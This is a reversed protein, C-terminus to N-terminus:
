FNGHADMKVILIQTPVKRGGFGSTKGVFVYGGDSADAVDYFLGDGNSSITKDWLKKGNADIKLAYPQANQSGLALIRGIVIFGGDNCAHVNLPTITYGPVPYTNEWLLNIKKDIRILIPFTGRSGTLTRTGIGVVGSDRTITQWQCKDYSSNDSSDLVIQKAPGTTSVRAAFLKYNDSWSWNDTTFKMGWINYSGDSNSGFCFYFLTKGGLQNDNFRFSNIMQLNQNLHYIMNNGPSSTGFGNTGPLYYNDDKFYVPGYNVYPQFYPNIAIINGSSDMTYLKNSTYITINDPGTRTYYWNGGLTLINKDIVKQWILNGARDTRFLVPLGAGKSGLILFGHDNTEVINIANAGSDTQYTKFFTAPESSITTKRCSGSILIIFASFLVFGANRNIEKLLRVM